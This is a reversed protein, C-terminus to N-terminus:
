EERVLYVRLRGYGKAMHREGVYDIAFGPDAAASSLAAFSESAYIQNEEAIPEIRAAQTVHSGAFSPLGVVPDVHIYVPGAHLGIRLRLDESLGRRRWRVGSVFDRLELAFRGADAVSDFALYLADGWTMRVSPKHRTRELLDAIGRLFRRLFVPIEAEGLKSYGVVDAFLLARIDRRIAGPRASAARRRPADPVRNSARVGGGPEMWLFLFEGDTIRSKLRALGVLLREAYDLALQTGGPSDSEHPSAVTVSASESLVRDFVRTWDRGDASRGAFARRAAEEPFPLVLHTEGGLELMTELFVLDPISDASAFGIRARSRGLIARLDERLREPTDPPTAGGRAPGATFVVIPAIAFCEDFENEPRGLHRLIQRAQRRSSALATPDNRGKQAARVYRERAERLDGQVLALEGLAAEVWPSPDNVLLRALALPRVERALRRAEAQRGSLLALSAANVGAHYHPELRLAKRYHEFARRQHRARAAPTPARRGLERHARGILALTEADGHKELCAELLRLATGLAGSQLLASARLRLLRPDDPWRALGEAAVDHGLFPEGAGILLTALASHLEPASAWVDADRAEWCTRLRELSPRQERLWALVRAAEGGVASDAPLPPLDFPGPM